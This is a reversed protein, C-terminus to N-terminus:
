KIDNIITSTISINGPLGTTQTGNSHWITLDLCYTYEYSGAMWKKWDVQLYIHLNTMELQCNRNCGHNHNKLCGKWLKIWLLSHFAWIDMLAAKNQYNKITMTGFTGSQWRIQKISPRSMNWWLSLLWTLLFQKVHVHLDLKRNRVM